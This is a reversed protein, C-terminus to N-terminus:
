NISNTYVNLIKLFFLKLLTYLILHVRLSLFKLLGLFKKLYELRFVTATSMNKGHNFFFWNFSKASFFTNRLFGGVIINHKLFKQISKCDFNYDFASVVSLTGKFLLLWNWKVRSSPTLLLKLFNTSIRIAKLKNSKDIFNSLYKFKLVKEILYINM